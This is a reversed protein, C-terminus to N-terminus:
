RPAEENPTPKPADLVIKGHKDRQFRVEVTVVVPVPRGGKKAPAFHWDRLAKVAAADSKKDIGRIVEASCLYGTDSVVALIAITGSSEEAKSTAAHREV